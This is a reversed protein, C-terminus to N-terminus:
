QVNLQSLLRGTLHSLAMEAQVADVQARLANLRVTLVNDVADRVETYIATGLEFKEKQAEAEKQAITLTRVALQYRERALILNHYETVVQARTNNEATRVRHESNDVSIRAMAREGSSKRDDLPLEYTLGVYGSYANQSGLDTALLSMEQNTLTSAQLWMQADLRQRSSEGAIKLNETAIERSAKATQIDPSFRDAESALNELSPVVSSPMIDVTADPALRMYTTSVGVMNALAIQKQLIETEADLVATEKLALNSEASLRTSAAVDGMAVRTAIEDLETRAVDRARVQIGMRNMSYWLEWYAKLIESLTISINSVNTKEQLNKETEAIRLDSLGVRKGAGRLLPQTVTARATLGTFPGEINANESTDIRSLANETDYRRGEARIELTTGPSWAKEITVAGVISDERQYMSEAVPSSTHTLGVDAGLTWPYKGEAVQINWDSNKLANLSLALDSNNKLALDIIQEPSVVLVDGSDAKQSKCDSAWLLILGLVTLGTYWSKKNM